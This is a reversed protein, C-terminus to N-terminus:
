ENHPLDIRVFKGAAYDYREIIQKDYRVVVTDIRHDLALSIMNKTGHSLGDWFAILVSGLTEDVLYDAMQANRIMGARKGFLKWDAPFQKIEMNHISAFQEGLRDPGKCTGSVIVTGEYSIQLSAFIWECVKNLRYFDTFDRSGAIEVRREISFERRDLWSMYM